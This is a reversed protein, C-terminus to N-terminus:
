RCGCEKAVMDPKISLYTGHENLDVVELADYAVPVCCPAREDANESEIHFSFLVAHNNTNVMPFACSGHCNNINATNPGVVRKELSVTLSRLGCLNGRAPNNPGARTARLGRQVEYAGAVTQLAKLLLFARYQSGGAAPETKPFASLDRLRGLREAARHGVEEEMIVEMLQVVTQELRRKVEELLAPSLALEGDHTQFMSCCGTFSFITPSSSNILGALLTESSSLDLMLPPLSQLSDLQLPPSASHDQPLVDGLFRKLECFFSTHSSAHTHRTDSGREVSFLLLPTVITNSGPKGGILIDKLIQNMDPTKTEVSIMWTQQVNGQTAKGTLAIYQTEGSICVSQTSPHLSQSTFTIDLNRGTLPSEFALLLVPNVKLLPSLSLDFTLVLTGTEDKVGRIGGGPHLVKLGNGQNKNTENALQLLVSSSDSETCIGFQALSRNTLEGDSGVGERLAAFIDDVFCPASHPAHHSVTSASPHTHETVAPDDILQQGHSVQLAACLRACCLMLAGCSFIDVFLM